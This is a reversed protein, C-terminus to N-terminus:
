SVTGLDTSQMSGLPDGCSFTAIISIGFADTTVAEGVFTEGNGYFVNGASGPFSTLTSNNYGGTGGSGGGGTTWSLIGTGDTGLVQGSTGDSGPLTWILNNAVGSPARFGVYNSGDSDKFAVAGQNGTFFSNSNVNGATSLNGAIVNGTVGLTTGITAAGNVTLAAVTANSSAGVTTFLATSPAVNGIPTNQLGGLASLTTIATISANSTLAAVTANGSSGVSTFLATSPTANGIPTSQLGGDFDGPGRATLSGTLTIGTGNINGTASIIGSTLLNGGTVNGTATVFTDVTVNGYIRTGSNLKAM